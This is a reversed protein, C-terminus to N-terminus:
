RIAQYLPAVILTYAAQANERSFCVRALRLLGALQSPLNLGRRLRPTLFQLSRTLQGTATLSTSQKGYTDGHLSEPTCGGFMVIYQDAVVACAHGSRRTPWLDDEHKPGIARWTNSGLFPLHRSVMRERRESFEGLDFVFIEKEEEAGGIM